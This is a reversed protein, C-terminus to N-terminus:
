ATLNLVCNRDFLSFCFKNPVNKWHPYHLSFSFSKGPKMIPLRPQWGPRLGNEASLWGRRQRPWLCCFCILAWLRRKWRESKDTQQSDAGARVSIKERHERVLMLGCAPSLFLDAPQLLSLFCSGRSQALPCGCFIWRNM